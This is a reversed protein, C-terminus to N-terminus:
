NGAHKVFGPDLDSFFAGFGGGGSDNSHFGPGNNRLWGRRRRNEPGVMGKDKQDAVGAGAAQKEGSAQGIRSSFVPKKPRKDLFCVQCIPKRCANRGM